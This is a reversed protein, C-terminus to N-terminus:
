PAEELDGIIPVWSSEVEAAPPPAEPPKAAELVSDIAELGEETIARALNAINEVFELDQISATMKLLRAGTAFAERARELAVDGMPPPQAPALLAALEPISNRDEFAYGVVAVPATTVARARPGRRSLM